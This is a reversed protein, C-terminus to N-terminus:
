AGPRAATLKPLMALFSPWGDEQEPFVKGPNLIGQPDFANKVKRMADVTARGLNRELFERKLIGVGHEGSLNGGLRIAEGFIATAAEQVREHEGPLDGDFLINPHLNGDGAHGFVPIRLGHQAAIEGVSRVMEPMRTRPVVVDEGLKRKAVRGFAGSVARRAAWFGVAEEPGTAVRIDGAGCDRCIAAIVTMAEATSAADAGDCEILLGAEADHPYGADVVDEVLCLTMRDFLELTAPMVGAALMSTVAETAGDLTEFFAFATARARPLPIIRLTAETIVGLTGESGVFLQSLAYGTSSKLTRGGTEIVAGDALVVVLGRVYDRTVGYKLCRPGGANTALNGGITCQRLSAPDPPYFFGAEEVAAHLDATLVGAETVVVGDGPDIDRISRMRSLNLVIAGDPPASGGALGTASGRAVVPVQADAALRMVDVVQQTSRPIVTAAPAAQQYAADYSYAALQSPASRVAEGGAIRRLERVLAARRM